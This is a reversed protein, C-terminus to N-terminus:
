CFARGTHFSISTIHASEYLGEITITQPVLTWPDTGLLAGTGRDYYENTWYECSDVEVKNDPTLRIDAIYSVAYDFSAVLLIGRANLDTIKDQLAQMADGYFITAYSADGYQYALIESHVAAGLFDEVADRLEPTVANQQAVPEITIMVPTPRFEPASPTTRPNLYDLIAVISGGAALLGLATAVLWKFWGACGQAKNPDDSMM